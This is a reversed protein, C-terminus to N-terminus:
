ETMRLSAEKGIMGFGAGEDGTMRFEACRLSSDLITAFVGNVSKLYRAESRIVLSM